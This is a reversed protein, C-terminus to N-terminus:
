STDEPPESLTEQGRNGFTARAVKHQWGANIRNFTLLSPLQGMSPCQKDEEYGNRPRYHHHDDEIAAVTPIFAVSSVIKPEIQVDQNITSIYEPTGSIGERPIAKTYIGSAKLMDAPSNKPGHPQCVYSVHPEQNGTRARSGSISSREDLEPKGGAVTKDQSFDYELLERQFWNRKSDEPAM